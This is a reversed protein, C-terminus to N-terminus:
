GGGLPPIFAVEDGPKLITGVPVYVQNVAYMVPLDQLESDGFIHLFLEGVTSSDEVEVIEKDLGRNERLVAFHLVTTEM